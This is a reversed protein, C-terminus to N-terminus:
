RYEYEKLDKMLHKRAFFIKSKVTGIPLSLKEAIEKYKFGDTFLQFPERFDDQLNSVKNKIEKYSHESEPSVLYQNPLLNESNESQKFISNTKVSRRYNNIFTNRMITYAWSKFNHPMKFKDKNILAKLLTDQLLDKAEDSNTTLTYAFYKLKDEISILKNNFEITTMIKISENNKVIKSLIM